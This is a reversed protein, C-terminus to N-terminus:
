ATSGQNGTGAWGGRRGAGRAAYAPGSVRAPVSRAQLALRLPPYARGLSLEANLLALATSAAPLLLAEPHAWDM